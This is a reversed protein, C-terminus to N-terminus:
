LCTRSGRRSCRSLHIIKKRSNVPSVNRAVNATMLPEGWLNEPVQAEVMMSRAKEMLTRQVREAQRSKRREIMM